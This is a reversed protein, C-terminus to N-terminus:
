GFWTVEGANVDLKGERPFPKCRRCFIRTEVEDNGVTIEHESNCRGCRVLFVHPVIDAHEFLLNEKQVVISLNKFNVHYHRGCDCTYGVALLLAREVEDRVMAEQSSDSNTGQLTALFPKPNDPLPLNQSSNLQIGAETPSLLQPTQDNPNNPTEKTPLQQNKQTFQALSHTLAQAVVPTKFKEVISAQQSAPFLSLIYLQELTIELHKKLAEELVKKAESILNDLSLIWQLEQNSLAEQYAKKLNIGADQDKKIVTYLKFWNLRGRWRNYSICLAKSQLDDAERELANITEWGLEKAITWRHEGDVIEYGTITKRVVIPLTKQPGDENMRQKLNQREQTGLFNCNWTNAKIQDLKLTLM